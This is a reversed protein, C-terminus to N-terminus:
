QLISKALKPIDDISKCKITKLEGLSYFNNNEDFNSHNANMEDVLLYAEEDSMDLVRITEETWYTYGDSTNHCLTTVM